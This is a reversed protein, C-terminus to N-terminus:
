NGGGGGGCGGCGSFTDGGSGGGSDTGGSAGNSSDSGGAAEGGGGGGGVTGADSFWGSNSHDMGYDNNGYDTGHHNEPNYNWNDNNSNGSDHNHHHHDNNNDCNGDSHDHHHDNNNDCNGDNGHHHHHHDNNNDCNGDGGHHHHHDNNNDCNGDGGHHHHHHHDWSDCYYDYFTPLCILDYYGISSFMMYSSMPYQRIPRNGRYVTVPKSTPLYYPNIKPKVNRVPKPDMYPAPKPQLVVHLVAVSLALALNSEIELRNVTEELYRTTIKGNKLDVSTKTSYTEFQFLSDPNVQITKTVNKELLYITIELRGPDGPTGTLYM